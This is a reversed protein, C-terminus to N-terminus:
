ELAKSFNKEGMYIFTSIRRINFTLPDRVIGKNINERAKEPRGTVSLFEAYEKYTEASNPNMEIAKLFQREAAKMNCDIEQYITGLATHAEALREDIELAKLAMM